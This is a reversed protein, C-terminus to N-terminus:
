RQNLLKINRLKVTVYECVMNVYSTTDNFILCKERNIHHTHMTLALRLKIMMAVKKGM